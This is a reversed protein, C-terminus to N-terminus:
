NGVSDFWERHQVMGDLSDFREGVKRAPVGAYISMPEVDKTVVSGAAVISGFGIHVGSMIIARYGVWVDDEIVVKEDLGKWDYDVDRIQPALRIPVGPQQYHHDYRGALSVFNAFIVNDGIEADCGIESYRGIYFNAGTRVSHKAYIFVQRGAHFGSGLQYKRWRVNVLYWDRVRKLRQVVSM